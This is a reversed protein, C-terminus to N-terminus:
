TPLCAQEQEVSIILLVNYFFPSFGVKGIASRLTILLKNDGKIDFAKHSM